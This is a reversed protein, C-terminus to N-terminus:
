LDRAKIWDITDRLTQALPRPKWGLESRIKGDCYVFPQGVLELPM